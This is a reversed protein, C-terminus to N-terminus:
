NVLEIDVRTSRQFVLYIIIIIIIIIIYHRRAGPGRRPHWVGTIRLLKGKNRWCRGYVTVYIRNQGTPRTTLIVAVSVYRANVVVFM